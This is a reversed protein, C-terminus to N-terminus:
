CQFFFSRWRRKVAGGCWRVHGGDTDGRAGRVGTASRCFFFFLPLPPALPSLAVWGGTQFSVEAIPFENEQADRLLEMSREWNSGRKSDKSKSLIHLMSGYEKATPAVLAEDQEAQEDSGVRGWFGGTRDQSSKDKVSDYEYTEIM